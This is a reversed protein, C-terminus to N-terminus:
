HVFRDCRDFGGETVLTHLHPNFGMQRSFPHLVVVAGATLR